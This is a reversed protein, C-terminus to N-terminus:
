RLWGPPVKARRAEDQVDAIAKTQQQIEGKVRELEALAKDRDVGIVARQAPDDRNVFDTSLANIRSQLAEAFVQARSLSTRASDIRKRWYAEDKKPETSAAAPVASAAADGDTSPTAAANPSGTAPVAPTTAPPAPEGKVNANTYVKGSSAVTKRREEEKRALEGLTQASTTVNLLVVVAAGRLVWNRMDKIKPPGPLATLARVTLEQVCKRLGATM